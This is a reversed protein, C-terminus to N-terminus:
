LVTGFPCVVHCSYATWTKRTASPAPTENFVRGSPTRGIDVQSYGIAARLGAYETRLGFFSSDTSPDNGSQRGATVLVTKSSTWHLNGRRFDRVNQNKLGAYECVVSPEKVLAKILPFEVGYNAVDRKLLVVVTQGTFIYHPTQVVLHLLRLAFQNSYGPSGDKINSHIQTKSGLGITFPDTDFQAIRILSLQPNGRSKCV